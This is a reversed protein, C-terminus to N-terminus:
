MVVAGPGTFFEVLQTTRGRYNARRAEDHLEPMGHALTRRVRPMDLTGELARDCLSRRFRGSVGPRGNADM